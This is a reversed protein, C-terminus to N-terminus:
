ADAHGAGQARMTALALASAIALPANGHSPWSDPDQGLIEAVSRRLEDMAEDGHAAAPPAAIVPATHNEDPSREALVSVSGMDGSAMRDLHKPNAYGIPAAAPRNALAARAMWLNWAWELTADKYEGANGYRRYDPQFREALDQVKREFAAREDGAQGGQAEEDSRGNLTFYYERGKYNLTCTEMEESYSVLRPSAEQQEVQATERKILTGPLSMAALEHYMRVAADREAEVRALAERQPTDRAILETVGPYCTEFLDDAWSDFQEDNMM